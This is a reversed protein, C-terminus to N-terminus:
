RAAMPTARFASLAQRPTAPAPDLTALTAHKAEAVLRRALALAADDTHRIVDTKRPPQENQDTSMWPIEAHSDRFDLLQLACAVGFTANERPM